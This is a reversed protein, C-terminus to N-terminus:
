DCHKGNFLISLIAASEIDLLIGCLSPCIMTQKYAPFILNVHLKFQTPSSSSGFASCVVFFWSPGANDEVAPLEEASVAETDVYPSYMPYADEETQVM